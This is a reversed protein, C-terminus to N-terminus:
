RHHTGTIMKVVGFEVRATWGNRATSCTAAMMAMAPIEHRHSSFGIRCPASPRRHICARSDSAVRSPSADAPLRTAAAIIRATRPRVRVIPPGGSLGTIESADISAPAVGLTPEFSGGGVWEFEEFAPTVLEECVPPAFEEFAPPVSGEWAPPVSGDCVPAVM